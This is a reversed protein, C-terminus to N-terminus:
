KGGEILESASSIDTDTISLYANIESFKSWTNEYFGPLNILMDELKTSVNDAQIVEFDIYKPNLAITEKYINYLVEEQGSIDDTTKVILIAKLLSYDNLMESVDTCKAYELSMGGGEAFLFNGYLEFECEVRKNLYEIIKKNVVAQLFDDSAEGNDRQYVNFTYEGDTLTLINTYTADKAAQFNEITFDSGYKNTAYSKMNEMKVEKKQNNMCGCAGVVLILLVVFLKKVKM